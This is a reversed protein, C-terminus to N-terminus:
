SQSLQYATFGMLKEAEYGLAIVCISGTGDAIDLKVRARLVFSVLCSIFNMLELCVSALGLCFLLLLTGQFLM